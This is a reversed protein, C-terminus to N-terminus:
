ALLTELEDAIHAISAGGVAQLEALSGYGYAGGIADFRTLDLLSGM